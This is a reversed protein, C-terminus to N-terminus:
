KKDSGKVGVAKMGSRLMRLPPMGLKQILSRDHAVWLASGGTEETWRKIRGLIKKTSEPDLNATPEDLLLLEPQILLLRVFGVRQAEGGSLVDVNQDLISSDLGVQDLEEALKEETPKETKVCRFSFPELLNERVLGSEFVPRQQMFGIKTRLRPPPIEGIENGYYFIKGDAYPYLRVIAKLLTSKGVGSPGIIPTITSGELQFNVGSSLCRTKRGDPVELRLEQVQLLPASPESPNATM